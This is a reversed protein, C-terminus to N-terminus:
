VETTRDNIEYRGIGLFEKENLTKDHEVGEGELALDIAQDEEFADVRTEVIYELRLKVIYQKKKM